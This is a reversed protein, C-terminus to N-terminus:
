QTQVQQIHYRRHLCSARVQSTNRQPSTSFPLKSHACVLLCTEARSIEAPPLILVSVWKPAFDIIVKTLNDLMEQRAEHDRMQCGRMLLDVGVGFRTDVDYSQLTYGEYEDQM